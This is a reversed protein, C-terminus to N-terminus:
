ERSSVESFKVSPVSAFVTARSYGNGMPAKSAGKGRVMRSVSPKVGFPSLLKAVDNATIGVGKYNDWTGSHKRLREILVSTFLFAEGSGFVAAVDRILREGWTQADIEEEEERQAELSTFRKIEASKGAILFEGARRVRAVFADDGIFLALSWLSEWIEQDRNETWEPAVIPISKGEISKRFAEIMGVIPQAEREATSPRYPKPANARRMVFLICRDRLTETPDGILAFAKPCYCGLKVPTGNLKRWVYEGVRYGANMMARMTNATSASLGEAEDFLLVCDSKYVDMVSYLTDVRTAKGIREAKHSLFSLLELLTTKGARKTAATVAVYATADFARFWWTNLVWLAAVISMHENPFVIYSELFAAIVEVLRQGMSRKDQSM